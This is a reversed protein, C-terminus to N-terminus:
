WGTVEWNNPFKEQIFDEIIAYSKPIAVSAGKMRLIAGVPLFQSKFLVAVGAFKGNTLKAVKLHLPSARREYGSISASNGGAPLSTFRFQLPLGFAVRNISAAKSSKTLVDKAAQYDPARRLRFGRMATGISEVANLWSNWGLDDPAIVWVKCVSPHLVDFDQPAVSATKGVIQKLGAQIEDRLESGTKANLNFPPLNAVQGDVADVALSGATRRSRAGLGGLTLLLWLPAAALAFDNANSKAGVRDRLALTFPQGPEAYHRDAKGGMGKMSYYLYDHGSPKAKDGRMAFTKGFSVNGRITLSVKAAGIEQDAAGFIRSEIARVEDIPKSAGLMARLWYRMQGRFSAPRLEGASEPEAGALFLPTVTELTLTLKQM